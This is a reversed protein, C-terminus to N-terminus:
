SFSIEVACFSGPVRSFRELLPLSHPRFRRIRHPALPRRPATSRRATIRGATHLKWHQGALLLPHQEFVQGNNAEQRAANVLTQGLMHIDLIHNRGPHHPQHVGEGLEVRGFLHLEAAIRLKADPARNQVTQSRQVPTRPLQAALAPRHLLCDPHQRRPHAARRVLSLHRHLHLQLQFFVLLQQAIQLAQLNAGQVQLAILVRAILLQGIHRATRLFVREKAAQPALQFLPQGLRNLIQGVPLPQHHAEVVVFLHCHALDAQRQPHHLRSDRLHMGRRHHM